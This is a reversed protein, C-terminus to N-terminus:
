SCYLFVFDRLRNFPFKTFSNKPISFQETLLITMNTKMLKQVVSTINKLIKYTYYIIM